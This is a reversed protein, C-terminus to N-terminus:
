EIGPAEQTVTMTSFVQAGFMLVGQGWRSSCIRLHSSIPVCSRFHLAIHYADYQLFGWSAILTHFPTPLSPKRSCTTSCNFRSSCPHPFASFSDYVFVSFSCILLTCFLIILLMRSLYTFGPSFLLLHHQVSLKPDPCPPDPKDHRDFILEWAGLSVSSISLVHALTGTLPPHSSVHRARKWSEPKESTM